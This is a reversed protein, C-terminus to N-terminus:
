EEGQKEKLYATVTYSFVTEALVNGNVDLISGRNATLTTQKINRSMAFKKINTGDINDVLSLRAGQIIIILLRPQM